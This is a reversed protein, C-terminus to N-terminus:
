RWRPTMINHIDACIGRLKAEDNARLAADGLEVLQDFRSKDMAAHRSARLQVYYATIFGPAEAVYRAYVEQAAQVARASSRPSFQVPVCRFSSRTWRVAPRRWIRM